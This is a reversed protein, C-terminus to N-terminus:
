VSTGGPPPSRRARSPVASAKSEHAAGARMPPHPSSRICAPQIMSWQAKSFVRRYGTIHGPALSGATRLLDAATRRGTTIIAAALLLLPRQYTPQTFVPAFPDLSALSADPLIAM